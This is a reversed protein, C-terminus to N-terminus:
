RAAQQAVQALQNLDRQTDPWAAVPAYPPADPRPEARLLLLGATIGGVMGCQLALWAQYFEGGDVSGNLLIDWLGVPGPPGRAIVFPSSERGAESARDQGRGADFMRLDESLQRV